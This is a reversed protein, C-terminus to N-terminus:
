PCLTNHTYLISVPGQRQGCDMSLTQRARVMQARYLTPTLVRFQPKARPHTLIPIIRVTNFILGM